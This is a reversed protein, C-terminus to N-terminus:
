HRIMKHSESTANTALKYFCRSSDIVSNDTTKCATRLM